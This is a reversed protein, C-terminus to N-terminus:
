YAFVSDYQLLRESLEENTIKKFRNNGTNTCHASGTIKLMGLNKRIGENQSLGADILFIDVTDDCLTLGLAVRVAESQRKEDNEDIVVAHKM